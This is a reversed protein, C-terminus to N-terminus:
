LIIQWDKSEIIPTAVASLLKSRLSVALQAAPPRLPSANSASSGVLRVERGFCKPSSGGLVQSESILKNIVNWLMGYCKIFTELIGYGFKNGWSCFWTIHVDGPATEAGRSARAGALLSWTLHCTRGQVRLPSLSPPPPYRQPKHDNIAVYPLGNGMATLIDM